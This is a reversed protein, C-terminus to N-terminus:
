FELWVSPPPPVFLKWGKFFIPPPPAFFTLGSIKGNQLGGGSGTILSWDRLTRIRFVLSFFSTISKRNDIANVRYIYISYSEKM